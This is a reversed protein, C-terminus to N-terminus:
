LSEVEMLVDQEFEHGADTTVSVTIKYQHGAVGGAVKFWVIGDGWGTSEPPVMGEVTEWANENDAQVLLHTLAAALSQTTSTLLEGGARLIIEVEDAEYEELDLEVSVQDRDDWEYAVITATAIAEGESLADLFSVSVPKIEAPQKSQIEAIEAM